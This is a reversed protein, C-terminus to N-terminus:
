ECRLLAGECGDGRPATLRVPLIQGTLTEESQLTVPIYNETYGQQLGNKPTEFLVEATAGLSKKIFDARLDDCVAQLARCRAAKEANSIQNPLDYARTGERPSFPFVHM